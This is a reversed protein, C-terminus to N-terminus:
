EKEPGGPQFSDIIEDVVTGITQITKKSFSSTFNFGRGDAIVYIQKQFMIRGETPIWRYIVEYAELGSKLVKAKEGLVEIGTLTQKLAEVHERAYALLDATQLENDVMVVMNHQVGSDEPGAYTYVTRDDWGPPFEMNFFNTKVNM